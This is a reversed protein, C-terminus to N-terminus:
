IGSVIIDGPYFYRINKLESKKQTKLHTGYFTIRGESYPMAKEIIDDESMHIKVIESPEGNLDVVIIEPFLKIQVLLEDNWVTDAFYSFLLRDNKYFSFGYTEVLHFMSFSQLYTGSNIDYKNGHVLENFIFNNEIWDHVPHGDGWALTCIENVRSKIGEPGMIRIMYNLPTGSSNYFLRLILFPLGFFHDGHYHSIYIIQLKSLDTKERFLSAMIDPPTEALFFEDIMFSNYPLGDNIAGGNGLIRIEM